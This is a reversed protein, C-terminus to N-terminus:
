SSTDCHRAGDEDAEELGFVFGSIKSRSHVVQALPLRLYTHHKLNIWV